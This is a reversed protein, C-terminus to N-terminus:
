AAFYLAPQTAAETEAFTQMFSAMHVIFYFDRSIFFRDPIMFNYKHAFPSRDSGDDAEQKKHEDGIEDNGSIRQDKISYDALVNVAEPIVTQGDEEGSNGTQAVPIGNGQDATEKKQQGTHSAGKADGQGCCRNQCRQDLLSQLNGYMAGSGIKREMQDILAAVCKGAAM